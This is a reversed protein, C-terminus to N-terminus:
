LLRELMWKARSLASDPIRDVLAHLSPRDAPPLEAPPSATGNVCKGRVSDLQVGAEGLLRAALCGSERLIGILLHETGIFNYGLVESEENAYGLIRKCEGTLPLDITTSVEPNKTIHADIKERIDVSSDLFRSLLGQDEREIGLLLHETEITTSGYNSAEYRAFFIVRRARETYREFM